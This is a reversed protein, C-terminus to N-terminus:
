GPHGAVWGVVEDDVEAVLCPDATQWLQLFGATDRDPRVLRPRPLRSPRIRVVIEGDFDHRDIQWVREATYTGDVTICAFQDTERAPRILLGPILAPRRDPAGYRVHAPYRM